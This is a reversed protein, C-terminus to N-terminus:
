WMKKTILALWKVAILVLVCLHLTTADRRNGCLVYVSAAISGLYKLINLQYIIRAM